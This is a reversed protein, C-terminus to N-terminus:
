KKIEEALERIERMATGKDKKVGFLGSTGLVLIDAGAKVVKPITSKNICGDVEIEVPLRRRNIMERVQGIKRLTQPVFSQGVLGTDVTMILVVDLDDLIYELYSLPTIPNLALGAKVGRDKIKGITRFIDIGSEVHVIIVDAGAEAFNDIQREPEAIQLHIEFSLKTSKRIASIAMPGMTIIPVFCGDTIDFHFLDAGEREMEKIEKGLYSFDACMVSPSLKIM